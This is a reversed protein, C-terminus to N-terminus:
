RVWRVIYTDIDAEHVDQESICRGAASKKAKVISQRSGTRLYHWRPLDKGEHLRRYACSAPLWHITDLLAPTLEICDPVHQKRHIYDSCSATQCDLLKCAVKTYAVEHSDEDELKILCCMGCGDCLAEWEQPHLESLPYHKWFEPRLEVSM